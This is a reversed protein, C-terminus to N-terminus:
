KLLRIEPVRLMNRAEADINLKEDATMKASEEQEEEQVDGEWESIWM